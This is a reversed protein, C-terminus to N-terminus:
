QSSGEEPVFQKEWDDKVEEFIEPGLVITGRYPEIAKPDVSGPAYSLTIHPQYEPYDWVAGAEVFERHRWRLMNSNFLLVLAGKDGLPEVIRAGGFVKIEPEYDDRIAMWDVPARSHAVTVHLEDAPMLNAIGQARAWAIIEGANRVKRQVYLSRPRADQALRAPSEMRSVPADEGDDGEDPLIEEGQAATTRATELGREFAPLFGSEVLLSEAGEKLAEPDVVGASVYVAIAEANLKHIEAAEKATPQWLPRFDHWIETPMSGLAHPILFADLRQLIPAIETEQRGGINDYYNRLDSEGTASLGNPSQGLLRTAPIDAAGSAITLFAMLVKDHNQFSLEKTIFEENDADIIGVGNMGKALSFLNWRELLIERAASDSVQAILGKIAVMDTKAEDVLQAFGQATVSANQVADYVSRLVSDGWFDEDIDTDPPLEGHVPIVRSPHIKLSPGSKTAMQYFRPQEFYPSRIDSELGDLITLRRRSVVHIQNLRGLGFRQPNLESDYKKSGDDIILAAGGYLRAWTKAKRIKHWVGLAKEANDLATIQDAEAKWERGERTMDYAPIAVIKRALWDNRFMAHLEAEDVLRDVFQRGSSKDRGSVGMGTLLNKLGDALRM